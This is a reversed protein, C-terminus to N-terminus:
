QKLFQIVDNRWEQTSSENLVAHGSQDYMKVPNIWGLADNLKQAGTYPAIKDHRGIAIQGITQSQSRISAAYEIPDSDCKTLLSYLGSRTNTKCIFDIWTSIKDVGMTSIFNNSYTAFIISWAFPRIDQCDYDDITPRLLDRWSALIIKGFEDRKDAIGTLHAKRIIHPYTAITSVIIRAGLSFAVVDMQECDPFITNSIQKFDHSHLEMSVNSYDTKDKDDTAGLGQGLYEYVLLDRERSFDQFHHQLGEITQAMGGLMVIPPPPKMEKEDNTETSHDTAERRTSHKISMNRHKLDKAPVLLCKRDNVYFMSADIFPLKCPIEKVQTTENENGMSRRRSYDSFRQASSLSQGSLFCSCICYSDLFLVLRFITVFYM